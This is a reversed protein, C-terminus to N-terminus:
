ILASYLLVSCSVASNCLLTVSCFHLAFCLLHEASSNQETRSQEKVRSRWQEAIASQKTIRSLEARKKSTRSRQIRNQDEARKIDARTSEEARKQKAKKNPVATNNEAM